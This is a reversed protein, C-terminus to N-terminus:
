SSTNALIWDVAENLGSVTVDAAPDPRREDYHHDIFITRVGARQGAAVDKWRDGISFSLGLDIAYRAASSVILGPAPKRCDCGADDDHFCALVDDIPLSRALAANMEEVTDRNLTGRAVDPQNSVVILLYGSAKLRTLEAGASPLIEFEALSKPAHPRGDRVIARNLVGDRDLFVARSRDAGVKRGVGM